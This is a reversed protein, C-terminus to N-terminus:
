PLLDINTQNIEREILAQLHEYEKRIEMYTYEVDDIKISNIYCEGMSYKSFNIFDSREDIVTKFELTFQDIYTYTDFKDNKYKPNPYLKAEIIKDYHTLTQSNYAKIM